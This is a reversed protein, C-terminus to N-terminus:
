KLPKSLRELFSAAIRRALETESGAIDAPTREERFVRLHTQEPLRILHALVRIQPGDRQVQGIVVYAAHLSSAIARLDRTQRPGRLIAANGIIAYRAGGSETLDAVTLDALAGAFRDFDPSGTENDFRAVAIVVPHSPRALMWGAAAAGLLAAAAAILLKRPFHRLPDLPAQHASSALPAIFQYGLKPVTRVYRPSTASDGLASRIQGICYNLGRDFDVFTDGWVATRIEDRTVISGAKEVLLSLVLAPQPELRVPLGDRTLERTGSDFAFIGFQRRM